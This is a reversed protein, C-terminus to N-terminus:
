EYVRVPNGPKLLKVNSTFLDLVVHTQIESRRRSESSQDGKSVVMWRRGERQVQAPWRGEDEDSTRGSDHKKPVIM